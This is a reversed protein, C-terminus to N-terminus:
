CSTGYVKAIYRILHKRLTESIRTCLQMGNMSKSWYIGSLLFRISPISRNERFGAREKRLINDVGKKIRNILVRGFIKSIVPLLTIGRWNTCERLNGKKPLKVIIGKNWRKPAVGEEKVKNFLKTLEKTREELDTKLLEVVVSDHGAAKESKTSKAANKVETPQFAGIDFERDNQRTETEHPQIPRVPSEKDFHEKWIKLRENREDAPKGNKDNVVTRTRKKEGTPTKM